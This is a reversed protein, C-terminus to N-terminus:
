WTTWRPRARRDVYGSHGCEKTSHTPQRRASWTTTSPRSILKTADDVNVKEAHAFLPNVDNRQSNVAARM